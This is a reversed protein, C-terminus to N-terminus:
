LSIENIGTWGRERVIANFYSALWYAKSYKNENNSSKSLAELISKKIAGHIDEGPYPPMPLLFNIYNMGDNDQRIFKDRIDSAKTGYVIELNKIIMLMASKTIIVRPYKATYRELDYAQILAEGFLMSNRVHILKGIVVAGRSFWGNALLLSQIVGLLTLLQSPDEIGPECPQSLVVLDSFVSATISPYITVKEAVDRLLEIGDVIEDTSSDDDNLGIIFERFGLIDIYGLLRKTSKYNSRTLYKFNDLEYPIEPPFAGGSM